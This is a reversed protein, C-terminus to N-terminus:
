ASKSGNLRGKCIIRSIKSRSMGYDVVLVKQPIGSAYRTQIERYLGDTSPTDLVPKTLVEETSFRHPTLGECMRRRVGNRTALVRSQADCVPCQM